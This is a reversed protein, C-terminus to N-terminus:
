KKDKRQLSNIVIKFFPLSEIFYRKFLRNPEQSFRHLWELGHKQFFEPARKKTGLYFEFAAGFLLFKPASPLEKKVLEQALIERKPLSIGVVVYEITNASIIDTIKQTVETIEAQNTASFFPPTYCVAKPNRQMLLQSVEETPTICLIRSDQMLAKEWVLPFLDSGTIRKALPSGLLRSAWVVPQGDPLIMYSQQIFSKLNPLKSFKVIQDVNLTAVVPTKGEPAPSFIKDVVNDINPESIFEYDLILESKM